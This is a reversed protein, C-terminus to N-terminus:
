VGGFCRPVGHQDFDANIIGRAKGGRDFTASVADLKACGEGKAAQRRRGAEHGKGGLRGDGDKGHDAGTCAIKHKHGIVYGLHQGVDGKGALMVKCANDKARGVGVVGKIGLGKGPKDGGCAGKAKGEVARKVQCGIGEGGNIGGDGQAKVADEGRALGGPGGIGGGQQVAQEGMGSAADGEHGAGADGGISDRFEGM